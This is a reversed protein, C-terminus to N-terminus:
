DQWDQCGNKEQHTFLLRAPTVGTYKLDLFSGFSDVYAMRTQFGVWGTAPLCPSQGLSGSQDRVRSCGDGHEWQDKENEAPCLMRNLGLTLAARRRDRSFDLAACPDLALALRGLRTLKERGPLCLLSDGAAELESRLGLIAEAM